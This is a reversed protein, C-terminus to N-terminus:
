TTTTSISFRKGFEKQAWDAAEDLFLKADIGPHVWRGTGKHKSSVIRFTMIQRQIKGENDKNQYVRVGKLFPIGTMGQKVKGIPGHGQGPGNATKIPASNIDFSHLLGTKPAGQADKEITGYPIQRNQLEAKITETLSTQAPTQQTPGKNHQFPIALYKSGDKGRKAKPSKLLDDIMEGAPKGNEIWLAKSDLNILWTADDIQTFSLAELYRQRTTKLKANVREVIRAHTALTISRVEAKAKETVQKDLDKLELIDSLDLHFYFM